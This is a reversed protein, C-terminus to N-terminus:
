SGSPALRASSASFAFRFNLSFDGLMCCKEFEPFLNPEFKNTDPSLIRRLREKKKCFIILM